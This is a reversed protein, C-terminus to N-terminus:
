KRKVIKVPKFESWGYIEPYERWLGECVLFYRCGGCAPGKSKGENRRYDGYSEVYLDADAVPGEPIIREAVCNEYGKMLCYPVAETYCAIGARKGEDLAKRVYPMIDSKKPVLWERNKWATGIIHVFALQFQDVKLYVLLRALEPLDKYNLSTIVSNTLVYMGLKRCNVMGKVVENFSGPSRTLKEHIEARSGHLSPGMQTVGAEKLERCFGYYAFSRGNTQIQIDAYGLKKAKRVVEFIDPHLTPEGGTFVVGGVGEARAKELISCIERLSKMRVRSRKDGQACFDCKNNCNFTIKIDIRKMPFRPLPLRRRRASGRLYRL